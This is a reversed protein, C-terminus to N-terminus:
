GADRRGGVPDIRRRAVHTRAWDQSCASSSRFARSTFASSAAGRRTTRGRIAQLMAMDEML